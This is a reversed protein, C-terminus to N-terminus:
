TNKKKFIPVTSCPEGYMISKANKRLMETIVVYAAAPIAIEGCGKVVVRQDAFADVDISQINKILLHQKLEDINGFFVNTAIPQLYATILM